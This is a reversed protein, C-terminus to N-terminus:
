NFFDNTISELKMCYGVVKDILTLKPFKLKLRCHICAYSQSVNNAQSPNFVKWSANKYKVNGLEKGQKVVTKESKDQSFRTKVQLNNLEFLVIKNISFCM